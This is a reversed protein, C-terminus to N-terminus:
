DELPVWIETAHKFLADLAKEEGYVLCLRRM